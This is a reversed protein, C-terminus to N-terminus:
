CHDQRYSRVATHNAESNGLVGLLSVESFEVELVNTFLGVICSAGRKCSYYAVLKM